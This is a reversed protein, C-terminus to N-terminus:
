DLGELEIGARTAFSARLYNIPMHDAISHQFWPLNTLKNLLPAERLPESLGPLQDVVFALLSVLASTVMARTQRVESTREQWGSSPTSWYEKKGAHQFPGASRPPWHPVVDNRFIHRFLRPGFEAECRSAFAPDGVMPQGFTYVGGLKADMVTPYEHYLRAAALVALAGGLSHGTIYLRQVPHILRGQVPADILRRVESEFLNELERQLVGNLAARLADTFSQVNGLVTQESEVLARWTREPGLGKGVEAALLNAAYADANIALVRALKEPDALWDKLLTYRQVPDLPASALQPNYLANTENAAASIAEVSGAADDQITLGARLLVQHIWHFMVELARYIGGHVRGAEYFPDARMSFNALWAIGDLPPTGRFCLIVVRGDQRQLLWARHNMFLADNHVDIWAWDERKFGARTIWIPFIDSYAWSSVACLARAITADYQGLPGELWRAGTTAWADESPSTSM